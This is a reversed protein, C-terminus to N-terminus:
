LLPEEAGLVDADVQDVRAEVLERLDVAGDPHVDLAGVFDGVCDLSREGGVSRGHDLNGDGFIERGGGGCGSTGGAASVLSRLISSRGPSAPAFRTPPTHPSGYPGGM